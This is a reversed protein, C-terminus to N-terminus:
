NEKILYEYLKEATSIDININDETVCRDFYDKGFHLEYLWYDIMKTHDNMTYELLKLVSDELKSIEDLEFLSIAGNTADYLDHQLKDYNKLINIYKIFDNKSLM